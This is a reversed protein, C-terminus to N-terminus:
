NSANTAETSRDVHSAIHRIRHAKAVSMTPRCSGLKRDFDHEVVTWCEVAVIASQRHSKSPINQRKEKSENTKKKKKKKKGYNQQWKTGNLKKSPFEEYQERRLHHIRQASHGVMQKCDRTNKRQKQKQQQQTWNPQFEFTNRQRHNLLTSKSDRRLVNMSWLPNQSIPFPRIKPIDSAAIRRYRSTVPADSHTAIAKLISVSRNSPVLAINILITSTNPTLSIM